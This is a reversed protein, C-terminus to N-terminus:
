RSLHIVVDLKKSIISCKMVYLTILIENGEFLCSWTGDLVYPVLKNGYCVSCRSNGEQWNVGTANSFRRKVEASCQEKTDYDDLYDIVLAIGYDYIFHCTELFWHFVFTMM